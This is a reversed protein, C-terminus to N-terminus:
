AARGTIAVVERAGERELITITELVGMAHALRVGERTYGSPAKRRGDVISHCSDCAWAVMLDSPKRAGGSGLRLDRFHAPQTTEGGGDCGPLRVTCARDRARKTLASM